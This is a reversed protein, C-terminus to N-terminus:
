LSLLKNTVFLCDENVSRAIHSFETPLQEDMEMRIKFVKVNGCVSSSDKYFLAKGILQQSIGFKTFLVYSFLQRAYVLHAARYSSELQGKNLQYREKMLQWMGEILEEPTSRMLGPFLYSNM